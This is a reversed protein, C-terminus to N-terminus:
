QDNGAEKEEIDQLKKLNRVTSEILTRTTVDLM